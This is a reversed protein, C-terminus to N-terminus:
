LCQASVDNGRYYTAAAHFLLPVSFHTIEFDFLLEHLKIVCMMANILASGKSSQWVYNLLLMQWVKRITKNWNIQHAAFTQFVFGIM